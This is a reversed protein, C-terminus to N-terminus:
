RTVQKFAGGSVWARVVVDITSTVTDWDNPDLGHADIGDLAAAALRESYAASTQFRERILTVTRQLVEVSYRTSM